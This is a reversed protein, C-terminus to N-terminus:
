KGTFNAAVFAGGPKLFIYLTKNTENQPNELIAVWEWGKKYTRKEVTKVAIEKWSGPVKKKAVLRDVEEKARAKVADETLEPPAEHDHGPHARATPPAALTTSCVLAAACFLLKANM